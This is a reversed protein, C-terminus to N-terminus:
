GPWGLMVLPPLREAFRMEEQDQGELHGLSQLVLLQCFRPTHDTWVRGLVCRM